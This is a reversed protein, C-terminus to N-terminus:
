RSHRSLLFVRATQVFAVVGQTACIIVLAWYSSQFLLCITVILYLQAEEFLFFRLNRELINNGSLVVWPGILLEQQSLYKLYPLYGIFFLSLFGIVVVILSQNRSYAEVTLALVVTPFKVYDSWKDLFSGLRSSAKRYRALQGDMCDFVYALQLLAAATFLSTNMGSLILLSTLGTLLFSLMTLRNPTVVKWDAVFHLIGHAIPTAFVRSWWEERPKFTERLKQKRELYTGM